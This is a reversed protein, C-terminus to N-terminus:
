MVLSSTAVTLNKNAEVLGMEIAFTTLSAANHMGLKKMLNSRHKEVTKVSLCLYKAIHKNAHGEAVLKLIERERLTVADLVSASLHSNDINLFGSVVQQSIERSLYTNGNLVSNIALLLESSTAHKLIYGDAGARLAQKIYEEATHVTLVLVRIEPSRKKIELIAEVGNLGPMSLDMLILVPNISHALIIADRGNDAEGVVDFNEHASILSILGQRLLTHDEVVVIRHKTRMLM